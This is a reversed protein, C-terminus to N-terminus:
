NLRICRQLVCGNSEVPIIVFSNDTMSKSPRGNAWEAFIGRQIECNTVCHENPLTCQSRFRISQICVTWKWILHGFIFIDISMSQMRIHMPLTRSCPMLLFFVWKLHILDDPLLLMPTCRAAYRSDVETEMECASHMKHRRATVQMGLRTAIM